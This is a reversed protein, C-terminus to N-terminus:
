QIEHLLETLQFESFRISFSDAPVWQIEHLLETLQFENFRM